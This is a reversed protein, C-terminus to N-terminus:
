PDSRKRSVRGEMLVVCFGELPLPASISEISPLPAGARNALLCYDAPTSDQVQPNAVLVGIRDWLQPMEQTRSPAATGTLDPPATRTVAQDMSPEEAPALDEEQLPDEEVMAIEKQAIRVLQQHTPKKGVPDLVKPRLEPTTQAGPMLLQQGRESVAPSVGVSCTPTVGLEPSSGWVPSSERTDVGTMCRRPVGEPSSELRQQVQPTTTGAFSPDQVRLIIGKGPTAPM